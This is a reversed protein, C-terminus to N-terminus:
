APTAPRPEDDALTTFDFEPGLPESTYTYLLGNRRYDPHFALGLLGREDFSGPGFAGLPM